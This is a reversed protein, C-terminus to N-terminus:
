PSSSTYGTTNIGGDMVFINAPGLASRPTASSAIGDSTNRQSSSGSTSAGSGGDTGGSAATVPVFNLGGVGASSQPLPQLSINTGTFQPVVITKPLFQQTDVPALKYITLVGDVYSIVYNTSSTLGSPTIQYRGTEIAGQSDGGYVVSGGLSDGGILGSIQVGNGGSYSSGDYLRNVDNARVTIPRGNVTLTGNNYTIVYNGNNANTLTGQTIGYTGVNSGQAATTTVSGSLTDSGYLGRSTGVGDAAVAYTLSPNADGYVRSKDDATVTIPRGNVTLTGNNYTIV